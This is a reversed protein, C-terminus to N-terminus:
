SLALDSVARTASVSVGCWCQVIDDAGRGDSAMNQDGQKVAIGDTEESLKRARSKSHM